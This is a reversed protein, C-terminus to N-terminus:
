FLDRSSMLEKRVEESSFSFDEKLLDPTCFKDLLTSLNRQDWPDTVRGGYIVDGIQCRLM